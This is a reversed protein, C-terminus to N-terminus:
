FFYSSIADSPFIRSIGRRAPSYSCFHRSCGFSVTPCPSSEAASLPQFGGAVAFAVEQLRKRM